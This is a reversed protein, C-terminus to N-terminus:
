QLVVRPVGPRSLPATITAGHLRARWGDGLPSALTFQLICEGLGAVGAVDTFAYFRFWCHHGFVSAAGTEVSQLVGQGFGGMQAPAQM